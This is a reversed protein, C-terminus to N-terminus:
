SPSVTSHTRRELNLERSENRNCFYNKDIGDMIRNCFDSSIICVAAEFKISTFNPHCIWRDREFRRVMDSVEYLALINECNQIVATWGVVRVFYFLWYRIPILLETCTWNESMLSFAEFGEFGAYTYESIKM